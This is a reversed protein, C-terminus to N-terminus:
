VKVRDSLARSLSLTDVNELSVGTPVGQAIRSFTLGLSSLRDEIFLILGENATSPTVAFIIENTTKAVRELRELTDPELSELVFYQGKFMGGEELTLIDRASTVLCMKTKDRTDDVCIECLEHESINGCRSCTRVKAVAEELAHALRLAAANNDLILHYALRLASKRGVAPLKELAEVVTFFKELGRKM